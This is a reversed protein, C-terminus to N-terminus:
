KLWVSVCVRVCVLFARNLACSVCCPHLFLLLSHTCVYLAWIDTPVVGNLVDLCPLLIYVFV